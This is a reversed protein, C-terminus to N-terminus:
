NKSQSKGARQAVIGNASRVMKVGLLKSGMFFIIKVAAISLLRLFREHQNVGALIKRNQVVDFGANFRRLVPHNQTGAPFEHLQLPVDSFDDKLVGLVPRIENL